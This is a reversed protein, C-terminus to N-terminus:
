CMRKIAHSDVGPAFVSSVDNDWATSWVDSSSKHFPKDSQWLFNVWIM